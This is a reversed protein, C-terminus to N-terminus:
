NESSRFIREVSSSAPEIGILLFLSGDSLGGLHTMSQLNSTRQGKEKRKDPEWERKASVRKRVQVLPYWEAM